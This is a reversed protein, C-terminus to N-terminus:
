GGWRGESVQVASTMVARQVVPGPTFDASGVRQSPASQLNSSHQWDPLSVYAVLVSVTGAKERDDLFRVREELGKPLDSPIAIEEESPTSHECTNIGTRFAPNHGGGLVSCTKVLLKCFIFRSQINM